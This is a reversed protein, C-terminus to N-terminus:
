LEKREKEKPEMISRMERCSEKHDLWHAFACDNSCYQATKCHDCRCMEKIDVLNRCKWCAATRKTTEKLKYYIERLCDCSNRRHFFRVIQRPSNIIDNVLVVIEANINKNCAGNYKDRAEIELMIALKNLTGAIHTAKTLDSQNAAKVCANTGNALIMRRFIKKRNDNLQYYKDSTRRALDFVSCEEGPDAFKMALDFAARFDESSCNEEGFHRCAKAAQKAKRARGQAKKRSPM